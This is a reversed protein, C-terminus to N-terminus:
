GYGISRLANQKQLPYEDWFEPHCVPCPVPEADIYNLVCTFNEIPPMIEGTGDCGKCTSVKDGRAM